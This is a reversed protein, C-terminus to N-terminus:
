QASAFMEGWTSSPLKKKSENGVCNRVTDVDLREVCEHELVPAIWGQAKDNM